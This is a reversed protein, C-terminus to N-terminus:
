VLEKADKVVDAIDADRRRNIYNFLWRVVGWAPLGCAFAIGLLGALGILDNAWHGIDLHRILAAGGGISGIVTCTLAVRWEQETAPKTMAIVVFTAAGAAIGGIGALGGIIKWGAVGAAAGSIPESMSKVKM